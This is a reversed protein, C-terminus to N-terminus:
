REVNQLVSDMSDRFRAEPFLECFLEEIEVAADRATQSM